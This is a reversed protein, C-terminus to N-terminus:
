GRWEVPSWRVGWKSCGLRKENSEKKRATMEQLRNIPIRAKNQSDEFNWPLHVQIAYLFMQQLLNIMATPLDTFNIDGLHKTEINTFAEVGEFHPAWSMEHWGLLNMESARSKFRFNGQFNYRGNGIYQPHNQKNKPCQGYNEIHRLSIPIHWRDGNLISSCRGWVLPPFNKLLM